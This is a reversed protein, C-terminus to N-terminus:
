VRPALNRIQEHRANAVVALRVNSQAPIKPHEKSSYDMVSTIRKRLLVRDTQELKPLLDLMSRRIPRLRRHERHRVVIVIPHQVNAVTIRLRLKLADDVQIAKARNEPVPTAGDTRVAVQNAAPPNKLVVTFRIAKAGLRKGDVQRNVVNKAMAEDVVERSRDVRLVQAAVDHDVNLAIM